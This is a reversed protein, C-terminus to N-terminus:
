NQTTAANNAELVELVNARVQFDPAEITKQESRARRRVQEELGHVVYAFLTCRSTTM